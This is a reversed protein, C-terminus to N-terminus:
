GSYQKASEAPLAVVQDIGRLSAAEKLEGLPAGLFLEIDYLRFNSARLLEEVAEVSDGLHSHMECIIIPPKERLIQKMGSLVLGENGEVDIKIIDPSQYGVDFVLEDLSTTFVKTVNNTPKYSSRGGVLRGSFAGGRRDFEAEGSIDGVARTDLTINTAGAQKISRSLVKTNNVEPEFAYVYGRSGVLSLFLFSFAGVNAGIDYATFGPKTLRIIAQRMSPEHNILGGNDTLNSHFLPNIFISYGEPSTIEEGASISLKSLLQMVGPFDAIARRVRPPMIAGIRNILSLIASTV